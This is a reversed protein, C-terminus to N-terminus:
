WRRLAGLPGTGEVGLALALVTVVTRVFMALRLARRAPLGLRLSFRLRRGTLSPPTFTPLSMFM